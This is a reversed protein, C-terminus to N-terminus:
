FHIKTTCFHILFTNPLLLHDTYVLLLLIIETKGDMGELTYHFTRSQFKTM